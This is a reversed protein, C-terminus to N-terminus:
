DGIWLQSFYEFIRYFLNEQLLIPIQYFPFYLRDGIPFATLTVNLRLSPLKGRYTGVIM